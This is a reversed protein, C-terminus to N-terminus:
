RGGVSLPQSCIVGRVANAPRVMWSFRNELYMGPMGGFMGPLEAETMRDDTYGVMLQLSTEKGSPEPIRIGDIEMGGGPNLTKWAEGERRFGDDSVLGSEVAEGEEDVYLYWLYFGNGPSFSPVDVPADTENRWTLRYSDKGPEKELVSRIPEQSSSPFVFFTEVDHQDTRLAAIRPWSGDVEGESGTVPILERGGGIRTVRGRKRMEEQEKLKQHIRDLRVPDEWLYRAEVRVKGFWAPIRIEREYTEGPELFVHFPVEDSRLYEMKERDNVRGKLMTARQNMQREVPFPWEYRVAAMLGRTWLWFGKEGVNKVQVVFVSEFQSDEKGRHKLRLLMEGESGVCHRSWTERATERDEKLRHMLRDWEKRNRCQKLQEVIERVSVDNRGSSSEETAGVAVTLVCLGMWWRLYKM